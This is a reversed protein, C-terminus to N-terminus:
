LKLIHGFLSNYQDCSEQLDRIENINWCDAENQDMEGQLYDISLFNFLTSISFSTQKGLLINAYDTGERTKVYPTDTCM